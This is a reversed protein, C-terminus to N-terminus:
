LCRILILRCWSSEIVLSAGSGCFGLEPSKTLRMSDSSSRVRLTSIKPSILSRNARSAHERSSSSASRSALSGISTYMLEGPPWTSDPSVIWSMTRKMRLSTCSLMIPVPQTALAPACM